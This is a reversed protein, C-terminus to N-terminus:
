GLRKLERSNLYKPVFRPTAMALGDRFAKVFLELAMPNYNDLFELKGDKFVLGILKNAKNLLLVTKPNHGYKAYIYTAAAELTAQEVGEATGELLDDCYQIHEAIKEQDEFGVIAGAIEGTETLILSGTETAAYDNLDQLFATCSFFIAAMFIFFLKLYTKKFM